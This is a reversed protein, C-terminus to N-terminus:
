GLMAALEVVADSLESVVEALDLIADEDATAKMRELEANSEEAATISKIKALWLDPKASIRAEIDPTAPFSHTWSEASYAVGEEREAEQVDTYFTVIAMENEIAVTFVPPKASLETKQRM